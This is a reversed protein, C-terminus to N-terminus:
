CNSIYKPMYHFPEQHALKTIILKMNEKTPNKFSNYRSLVELVEDNNADLEGKTCKRLTNAEDKGMYSLFTELLFSDSITREEFLYSGM